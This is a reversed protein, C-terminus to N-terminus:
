CPTQLSIGNRSQAFSMKSSKGQNSGRGNENHYAKANQLRSTPLVELQPMKGQRLNKM